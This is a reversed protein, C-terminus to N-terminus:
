QTIKFIWSMKQNRVASFVIVSVVVAAVVRQCPVRVLLWCITAVVGTSILIKGNETTRASWIPLGNTVMLLFLMSSPVSRHRESWMFKQSPVSDFDDIDFRQRERGAQVCRFQILSIWIMQFPSAFFFIAAHKVQRLWIHRIAHFIKM